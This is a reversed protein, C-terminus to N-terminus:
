EQWSSRAALARARSAKTVFSAKEAAHIRAPVNEERSYPKRPAHVRTHRARLPRLLKVQSITLARERAQEAQLGVFDVITRHLTYRAQGTSELLGADLLSDLAELSVGRLSLAEEESFSAPKAPFRALAELAQRSSPELQCYSLELSQYPSLPMNAPLGRHQELPACPIPLHLRAEASKLYALAAHWRRPQGTYVQAQLYKGMARLALPLGGALHALTRMAGAEHAVIEPVFAALLELSEQENLEDVVSIETCDFYFAVAPVRTTLLYACNPGGIHFTLAEQCTWADDIILLMKRAGIRTHIARTWEEVSAPCNMEDVDIELLEGWRRLEGALDAAPGLSAWLVGDSFYQQLASSQALASALATKGVGPLGSLAVTAGGKGTCLSQKLRHLLRARGVLGEALPPPLALDHVPTPTSLHRHQVLSLHESEMPSPQNNRQWLGLEAASMQFLACLRQLFYASPSASGREWRGITKPDAVGIHEAIYARSWGRKEREERLQENPVQVDVHKKIRM